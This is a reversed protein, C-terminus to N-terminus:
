KERKKYLEDMIFIGDFGKMNHFFVQIDREKENDEVETLVDLDHVFKETCDLGLHSVVTDDESTRMVFLILFLTIRPGWCVNLIQM